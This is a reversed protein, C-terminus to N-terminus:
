GAAGLPNHMEHASKSNQVFNPSIGDLQAAGRSAGGGRVCIASTVQACWIALSAREARLDRQVARAGAAM